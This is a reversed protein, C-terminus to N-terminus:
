DCDWNSNVVISLFCPTPWPAPNMRRRRTKNKVEKAQRQSIKKEGVM